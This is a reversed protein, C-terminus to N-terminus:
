VSGCGLSPLLELFSMTKLQNLLIIALCKRLTTKKEYQLIKPRTKFLFFYRYVLLYKLFQSNSSHYISHWKCCQREVHRGQPTRLLLLFDVTFGKWSLNSNWGYGPTADKGTFHCLSELTIMSSKYGTPNGPLIM